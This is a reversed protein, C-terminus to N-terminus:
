RQRRDPTELIWFRIREGQRDAERSAKSREGHFRRGVEAAEELADFAEQRRGVDALRVALNNLSTALDAGVDASRHAALERYLLVAEEAARLGEERRGLGGLRNGLNTLSRALAAGHAGASLDALGRNIRVAEEITDLAEGPRDVDALRNSLNSMLAALGPGYAEPERRALPRYLSVAEYGAALAETARGTEGLRVSHNGLTEALDPAVAEPSRAFQQRCLEVAEDVTGLAEDHRGDDALRNSLIRLSRVLHLAYTDPNQRTLARYHRVNDAAVSSDAGKRTAGEPKPKEAGARVTGEGAGSVAQRASARTFAAALAAASPRRAQDKDLCRWLADALEPAIGSAAVARRGDPTRSDSWRGTLVSLLLAGAAAVDSEPTLSSGDDNPGLYADSRPFGVGHDNDAGDVSAAMWGVLRVDRDTVLVARPALGGHVLGLGHARDVARALDQGIRLFVAETVSGGQEELFARLNPAPGSSPDDARRHVLAAAIWPRMHAPSTGVDLLDPAYTGDMRLLCESETRVLEEAAEPGRDYEPVPARVTIATGDEDLALYM